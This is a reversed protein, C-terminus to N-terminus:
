CFLWSGRAAAKGGFAKRGERVRRSSTFEGNNPWYKRAALAIRACNFWKERLEEVLEGAEGTWDGM